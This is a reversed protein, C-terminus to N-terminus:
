YDLILDYQDNDDDDDDDHDDDAVNYATVHPPTFNRSFGIFADAKNM